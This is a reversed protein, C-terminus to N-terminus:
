KVCAVYVNSANCAELKLSNTATDVITANLSSSDDLFDGCTGDEVSTTDVRVGDKRLMAYSTGSILKRSTYADTLWYKGSEVKTIIYKFDEYEAGRAGDFAFSCIAHPALAGAAKKLNKYNKSNFGMDGEVQVRGVYKAPAISSGVPGAANVTFSSVLILAIILYKM